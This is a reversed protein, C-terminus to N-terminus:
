KRKELTKLEATTLAPLKEIAFANVLKGKMVPRGAVITKTFVQCQREKLQEYIIHPVHWGEEANFPVYKKFTGVVSNGVTFIEGAWDKKNPDMCTLRIRVLRNAERKLRKRAAARSEQIPEVTGALPVNVPAAVAAPSALTTNVKDRLKVVGISPHYKIGMQDARQKLVTLEDEQPNETEEITDTM